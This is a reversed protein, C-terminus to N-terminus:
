KKMFKFEHPLKEYALPYYNNTNLARKIQLFENDFAHYKEDMATLRKHDYLLAQMQENRVAGKLSYAKVSNNIELTVTLAKYFDLAEGYTIYGSNLTKKLHYKLTVDKTIPLVFTLTEYHYPLSKQLLEPYEDMYTYFVNEYNEIADNLLDVVTPNQETYYSTMNMM